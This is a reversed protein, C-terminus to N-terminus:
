GLLSIAGQYIGVLLACCGLNLAMHRAGQDVRIGLRVCVCGWFIVLLAAGADDRELPSGLRLALAVCALWLGSALVAAATVENVSPKRLPIGIIKM